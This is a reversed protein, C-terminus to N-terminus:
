NGLEGNFHQMLRAHWARGQLEQRTAALHARRQGAIGVDVPHGEGAGGGGGQADAGVHGFMAGGAGQQDGLGTAKVGHDDVAGGQGFLRHLGDDFASELRGALAAGGHAAEIHLFVDGFVQDAHERAGHLRQVHAIRPMQRGINAGNDVVGRAFPDDLMDFGGAGFATDNRVEFRGFTAGEDARCDQPHVANSVHLAFDEAGNQMHRGEFAMFEVGHDVRDISRAIPQGKTQVGPNVVPHLM